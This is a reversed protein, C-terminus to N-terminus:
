SARRFGEGLFFESSDGENEVQEGARKEGAIEAIMEAELEVTETDLGFLPRGTGQDDGFGVADFFKFNCAGTESV